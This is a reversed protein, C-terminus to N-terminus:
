SQTFATIEGCRQEAEARPQDRVKMEIDMGM